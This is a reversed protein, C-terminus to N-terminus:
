EVFCVRVVAARDQEGDSTNEGQECTKKEGKSAAGEIVQDQRTERIYVHKRTAQRGQARRGREFVRKNRVSAIRFCSSLGDKNREKTREARVSELKQETRSKRKERERERETM